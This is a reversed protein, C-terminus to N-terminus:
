ENMMIWRQRVVGGVCKSYSPRRGILTIRILIEDTSSYNITTHYKKNVVYKGVFSHKNKGKLEPQTNKVRISYNYITYDSASTKEKHKSTYHM